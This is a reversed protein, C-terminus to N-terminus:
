HVLSRSESATQMNKKAFGDDGQSVAWTKITAIALPLKYCFRIMSHAMTEEMKIINAINDKIQRWTQM